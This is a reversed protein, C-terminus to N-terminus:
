DKKKENEFELKTELIKTKKLGLEKKLKDWVTQQKKILLKLSKTVDNFQQRTTRGDDTRTFVKEKIQRYLGAVRVMHFEDLNNGSISLFRLREMLPNEKNEAESLVRENFDLWSLERNIFRRPTNKIREDYVIITNKKKM